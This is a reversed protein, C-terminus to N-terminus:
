SLNTLSSKPSSKIDLSIGLPMLFQDSFFSLAFIKPCLSCTALLPWSFSFAACPPPVGLISAHSLSQLSVTPLSFPFSSASGMYHFPHANPVQDQCDFALLYCLCASSMIQCSKKPTIM